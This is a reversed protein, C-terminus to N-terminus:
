FPENYIPNLDELLTARAELLTESTVEEGQALLRLAHAISALRLPEGFRNFIDEAVQLEASVMQEDSCEYPMMLDKAEKWSLTLAREKGLEKVKDRMNNITTKSRPNIGFMRCIEAPGCNGWKGSSPEYYRSVVRWMQEMKQAKSVPLQQSKHNIEFSLREAIDKTGALVRANITNHGCEKAAAVRHYGDVLYLKDDAFVCTVPDLYEKRDISEKMQAIHAKQNKKFISQDKSSDAEPVRQQLELVLENIQVKRPNIYKALATWKSSPHDALDHLPKTKPM